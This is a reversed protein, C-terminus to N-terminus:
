PPNAGFALRWDGFGIRTNLTVQYNLTGTVLRPDDFTFQVDFNMILPRVQQSCDLIYWCSPKVLTPAILCQLANQLINASLMQNATVLPDPSLSSYLLAFAEYNLDPPVILTDPTVALQPSNPGLGRALAVGGTIVSTTSLTDTGFNVFSGRTGFFPHSDAATATFGTAILDTTMKEMYNQAQFGVKAVCQAIQTYLPAYLNRPDVTLNYTWSTTSGSLPFSAVEPPIHAARYIQASPNAQLWVTQDGNNEATLLTVLSLWSTPSSALSRYFLSRLGYAFSMISAHATGGQSLDLPSAAYGIFSNTGLDRSTATSGLGVRSVTQYTALSNSDELPRDFTEATKPIENYDYESKALFLNPTLARESQFQPSLGPLELQRTTLFSQM